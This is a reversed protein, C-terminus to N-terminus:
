VWPRDDARDLPHYAIYQVLRPRTGHNFSAGHPLTGHWIVMDGAQGAIRVAEASLDLARPDVGEPLSALWTELRRHFGPVCHFAGQEARTDTLYLVGQFYRPFPPVLSIDWHLRPVDRGPPNFGGRDITVQLDDTGYLQAFANRIRPARRNREFAPHQVLPVFIGETKGLDSWGEPVGPDLGMFEWIAQAAARCDDPPAARRLVVYGNEDWCRLDAADLVPTFDPGFGIRPAVEGRAQAVAANVQAIREPDLSGGNCELVWHQFAAFDPRRSHLFGLTEHLGLGLGYIAAQDAAWEMGGAPEGPSMLARRWLRRLQPVDLAGALIDAEAELMGRSTAHAGATPM